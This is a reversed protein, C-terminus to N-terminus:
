VVPTEMVISKANQIDLAVQLAPLPDITIDNSVVSICGNADRVYFRYTGVPVSMTVSSAFNGAVTAFNPTTSYQYTGTGGTASLTITSQTSCTQTTALVLSAVVETPENIVIPASTTGCGWGDTVTVTYTGAGLNNFVNGSQPGSSIMPTASTTNLTYLYNSGQGGTPVSVTITANTNGKCTLLTTSPTATFAIPTPNNLVVTTFVECGKSDRVKVIYSGATLANFSSIASWPKVVTAGRELQFEYGGSWGGTAIASISGDNNGTVCTIETHTESIALIESPGTITFNKSVICNPTNTLTATITYTGASLNTLSIPGASTATGTSPTPGTVTYTFPGANDIPTSVRDILTVRASGNNGGFCTVDVVNDITLDFTDPDNVYHVGIIECNTDLNRVTIEYNGVPLNTFIGTANTVAPYISGIIATPPTTTNDYTVDVLTYQLNTAPGGITTASVTINELNTCTIAQDVVVNVQDLQIYPAINITATSTGICGKDDYVNVIYSGGLLNVETYVNSNSFQVVTNPTGVKIFEYNL